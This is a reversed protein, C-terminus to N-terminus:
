GRSPVETMVHREWPGAFRDLPKDPTVMGLQKGCQCRGYIECDGYEIVLAHGGEWTTPFDEDEANISSPVFQNVISDWKVHPNPGLEFQIGVLRAANLADALRQVDTGQVPINLHETM